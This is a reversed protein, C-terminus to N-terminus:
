QKRTINLIYISKVVHYHLFNIQNKHIILYLIRTIKEFEEEFALLQFSPWALNIKFLKLLDFTIYM